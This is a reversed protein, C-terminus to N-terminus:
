GDGEHGSRPMHRRHISASAGAERTLTHECALWSSTPPVNGHGDVDKVDHISSELCRIDPGSGIEGSSYKAQLRDIARNIAQRKAGITAHARHAVLDAVWGFRIDAEFQRFPLIDEIRRFREHGEPVLHAVIRM